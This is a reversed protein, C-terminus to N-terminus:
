GRTKLYDPVALPRWTHTMRNGPRNEPKRIEQILARHERDRERAEARFREPNSWYRARDQALRRRYAPTDELRAAERRSAAAELELTHKVPDRRAERKRAANGEPDAQYRRREKAAKRKKLCAACSVALPHRDSIDAPCDRCTRPM